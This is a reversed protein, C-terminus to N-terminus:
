SGRSRARWVRAPSPVRPAGPVDRLDIADCRAFGADAFFARIDAADRFDEAVGRGRTVLKICARLANAALAIAAGGEHSRLDCLFVGDRDGLATAIARALQFREGRPFYGLLGEAVVAPRKADGLLERLRDAFDPALVDHSAHRLLESRVSAPIRALKEDIMHPLDIEVYPVGRDLAWTLGRRSLGAGLEVIRDPAHEELAHEIALHRQALYQPMSPIGPLAAAIWEGGVRFGWFLAAGTTTAFLEAHPLGLRHWVYATYHATPAIKQDREM